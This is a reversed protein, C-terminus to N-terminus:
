LGWKRLLYKEVKLREVELLVRNYVIIEAYWGLWSRFHQRDKSISDINLNTTSSFTLCAMDYPKLLSFTPVNIGNLYTTTNDLNRETWEKNFMLDTIDGHFTPTTSHGFLSQWDAYKTTKAVVFITKANSINNFKLYKKDSGNYLVKKGGILDVSPQNATLPQIANRKVESLDNWQSVIDGKGGVLTEGDLWLILGSIENVDYDTDLMTGMKVRDALM